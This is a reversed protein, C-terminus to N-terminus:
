QFYRGCRGCFHHEVDAPHHSKTRCPSFKITGKEVVFSSNSRICWLRSKISASAVFAAPLFPSGSNAAVGAAARTAWTWICRRLADIHRRLIAAPATM